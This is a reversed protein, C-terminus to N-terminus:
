LKGQIVDSDDTPLLVVYEEYEYEILDLFEFHVEKGSEETLTVINDMM